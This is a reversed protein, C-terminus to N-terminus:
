TQAAGCCAEKIDAGCPSADRGEKWCFSRQGSIVVDVVVVVMEVEALFWAGLEEAL